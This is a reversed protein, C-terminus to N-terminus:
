LSLHCHDKSLTYPQELGPLFSTSFPKKDKSPLSANEEEREGGWMKKGCRKM